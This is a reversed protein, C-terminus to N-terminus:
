VRKDECKAGTDRVECEHECKVSTEREERQRSKSQGKAQYESESWLNDSTDRAETLEHM